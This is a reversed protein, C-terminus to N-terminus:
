NQILVTYTIVTEKGSKVPVTFEIRSADVARYAHSFSTIKWDNGIYDSFTVQIDEKKHNRLKIEYTEEHASDSIKKYGSRVREGVIDFANGLFLRLKEDKPTHEIWDEGIFQLSGDTDAKYVRVKGEPLPIGLGNRSSNKLEVLVRIKKGYRHWDLRYIKTCSSSSAPFLSVQKVQNDRVTAPRQLTYMHYEFFEKEEFQAPAAEAAYLLDPASRKSIRPRQIQNVEGAILKLGADTYTKGSTNNISVWGSLGLESDDENVIGVYEAHWAIGTTLYDIETEQRETGTNNLLWNLTPRTILGEPLAPFDVHQLDDGKVIQIQGNEKELVIDSGSVSLLVGEFVPGGTMVLRVKRDIYKQMIKAASVLDYEFNQELIQLKGPETLSTFHVSTPDIQSAVDAFRVESIGRQIPLVRTERVLALNRNYITLTVQQSFVPVASLLVFIFFSKKMMREERSDTRRSGASHFM